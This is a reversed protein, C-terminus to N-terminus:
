FGRGGGGIGGGGFGGGFGGGSFGGGFGSGSSRNSTAIKSNATTITQNITKTINTRIANHLHLHTYIPMIYVDDGFDKVRIQMTKSVKDAIGLAAAYVLYKDWLAIEPLEKENFRGFDLLFRKFAKWKYYHDNGKLTRKTITFPYILLFAGAIIVFILTQSEVMLAIHLGIILVGLFFYGLAKLRFSSNFDYDEFFGQKKAAAGAKALWKNYNKVFRQAGKMSQAEKSIDTIKVESGNGCDNLLWEKIFQEKESLPIKPENDVLTYKNKKEEKVVFGKKYIINLISASLGTTSIRKKNMLYEVTEPGYDGAFERFYQHHFDSRHEKDYKKYIHYILAVAGILWSYTLTLVSYDIIKVYTAHKKVREKIIEKVEADSLSLDLLKDDIIVDGTLMQDIRNWSLNYKKAELTINEEILLRRKVMADHKERVENAEDSRRQEEELIETFSSKNSIKTGNPVINLDFVTRVDILQNRPLGDIKAIVRENNEQEVTGWLPGHAWVRLDTARKPLNITIMVEDINDDFNQGVFTWYLEAIDNHIVVVDKLIYEIYFIRERNETYNYMTLSINDSYNDVKYVHSSGPSASSVRKFCNLSAASLNFEGKKSSPVECVRRLEIDSADYLHYKGKFYLDRIYGNFSGDLVIQEQVRMDGNELIDANIYLGLVDYDVELASVKIPWLFLLFLFIVIKKM